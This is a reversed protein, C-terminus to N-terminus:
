EAPRETSILTEDLATRQTARLASFDSCHHATCVPSDLAAWNTRDFAAIDACEYASKFAARNPEANASCFAVRVAGVLAAGITPQYSSGHPTWQAASVTSDFPQFEPYRQAASVSEILPPEDTPRIAARVSVRNTADITTLKASCEAFFLATHKASCKAQHHALLLATCLTCRDTSEFPKQLSV